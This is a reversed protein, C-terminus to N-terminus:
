SVLERLKDQLEAAEEYLRGSQKDIDWKIIGDTYVKFLFNLFKNSSWQDKYDLELYSIVRMDMDGKIKEEHPNMKRGVAIFDIHFKMLESIKREGEFVLDVEKGASKDKWEYKKETFDYQKSILYDKAIKYIKKLDFPGHVEIKVGVKPSVYIKKSM